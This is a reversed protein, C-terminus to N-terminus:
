DFQELDLEHLARRIDAAARGQAVLAAARRGHGVLLHRRIGPAHAYIHHPDFGASRLRRVYYLQSYFPVVRDEPDSIMYIQPKPDKPIQDIEDVPDYFSSADYLMRGPIERRNEWHSTVQKVSVLGSTIVAARIDTRMNLLAAAIQGGASHGTLIFSSIRYREKMMDLARNMVAIERTNRRENHDGSSGYIGPRALYIAPLGAEASWEAMDSRIASPSLSLYSPTVYRVGKATRLMIDGSFYVLSSANGDVSLGHAYYRICDGKGDIEVWLGGPVLACHEPSSFSGNLAEAADFPQDGTPVALERPRPKEFPGLTPQDALGSGGFVPIGAVVFLGRICEWRLRRWFRWVLNKVCRVFPGM